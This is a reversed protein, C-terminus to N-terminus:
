VMEDIEKKKQLEMAKKESRHLEHEKHQREKEIPDGETEVLEELFEKDNLEEMAKEVTEIVRQMKLGRAMKELDRLTKDFKEQNKTDENAIWKRIMKINLCFKILVSSVKDKGLELLNNM